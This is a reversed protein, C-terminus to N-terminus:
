AKAVKKDPEPIPTVKLLRQVIEDVTIGESEAEFSLRLRHRLVPAAVAQIDEISVHLRERVIAHAKAALVLSQSARPGAGWAIYQRIFDYTHDSRPRTATVLSVAYRAIHRAVPLRRVLRQYNLIEPGDFVGELRQDRQVTTMLVINEEQEMTPYDLHLKMFFR